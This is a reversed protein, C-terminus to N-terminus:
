KLDLYETAYYIGAATWAQDKASLQGSDPDKYLEYESNKIFLEVCTEFNSVGELIATLIQQSEQKYGFNHLGQSILVSVFPWFTNPGRHYELNDFCTNKDSYIRVGSTPDFIDKMMIRKVVNPIYKNEIICEGDYTAWLNIAPDSSIGEIIRNNGDIAEAFYYTSLSDHILFGTKPQNFKFKLKDAEQHLLDSLKEDNIKIYEAGHKFASWVIGNVWVDKIPHNPLLCSKNVSDYALYARHSDKWAQNFLGNWARKSDHNFASFGDYQATNLLCWNIASLIRKQTIENNQIWGSKILRCMAIIWLPTSDNSDWNKLINDSPDIYWSKQGNSTLEATLHQYQEPTTRIEHPIKGLEEGNDPNNRQGQWNSLQWVAKAAIPTFESKAHNQEADLVLLTTIITDRGFYAHYRGSLGMSSSAFIGEDTILDTLTKISLNRLKKTTASDIM